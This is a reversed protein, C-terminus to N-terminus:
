TAQALYRRLVDKVDEREGAQDLLSTGASNAPADISAGAGLLQEVVRVYDGDKRWCHQAGHTAWGLPTSGHHSDRTDLPIRGILLPVVDARGFWCAQHLATGMDMGPTAPDVGAELLLRVTEVKGMGAAHGLAKAEEPDLKRGLEPDAKLLQRVGDEDDAWAKAILRQGAPSRDELFAKVKDSGRRTAALFPTDGRHFVYTYIHGGDSSHTAYRGSGVRSNIEEPDAELIKRALDPDDLAVASFIDPKAGRDILLRLIDPNQAHYQAATGEHDVDKIEMDAGRDILFAATEANAAFHLPTMGDGGPANVLSPDQELIEKLLDIRGHKAASWVDFRTGLGVLTEVMEPSANDLPGFGGAWWRSRANPDAGYRVLISVMEAGKPRHSAGILPTSDFGFLPDDLHAKLRPNERLLDELGPVDSSDIASVLKKLLVPTEVADM